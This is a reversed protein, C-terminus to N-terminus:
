SEKLARQIQQVLSHCQQFSLQAHPFVPVLSSQLRFVLQTSVSAVDIRETLICGQVADRPLLPHHSITSNIRTTRQVGLPSITVSLEVEKRLPSTEMVVLAIVLGGVFWVVGNQIESDMYYLCGLIFLISVFALFPKRKKRLRSRVSFKTPAPSSQIKTDENM